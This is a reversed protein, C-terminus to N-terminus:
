DNKSIQIQQPTYEILKVGTPVSFEVSTFISEGSKLKKIADEDIFAHISSKEVKNIIEQPGIIMISIKQPIITIGMDLPYHIPILSITREVQKSVTVELTIQNKVFRIRPDPIILDVNIKGDKLMKQNIKETYIKELQDIISKPGNVTIKKHPDAIKNNLFFEEDGASSYQVAISIKREVIKDLNISFENYTNFEDLNLRVRGQNRLDSPKVSTKNLGYHFNDADIEVFAESLKFVIFDLGRAEFNIPIYPIEESSIILNQPMNLFHVPVNITEQHDKWLSQLIWFLIALFFVLIKILLNKKM